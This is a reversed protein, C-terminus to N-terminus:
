TTADDSAQDDREENREVAEADVAQLQKLQAETDALIALLEDSSRGELQKEAERRRDRPAVYGARDLVGFAARLRLRDRSTDKDSGGLELLERAVALARVAMPGRLEGEVERSIAARILPHDLLEHAANRAREEPYGAHVACKHADGADFAHRVFHRVFRRQQTTLAADPDPQGTSRVVALPYPRQAM